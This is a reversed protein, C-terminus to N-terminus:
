LGVSIRWEGPVSSSVDVRRERVIGCTLCRQYEMDPSAKIPAQNREFRASPLDSITAGWTHECAKRRSHTEEQSLVVEAVRRGMELQEVASVRSGPIEELAALSPDYM